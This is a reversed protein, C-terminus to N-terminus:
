QFHQLADHRWSLHMHNIYVGMGLIHWPPMKEYQPEKVDGM